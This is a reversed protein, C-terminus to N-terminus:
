SGYDGSDFPDVFCGSEVFDGVRGFDAFEGSVLIGLNVPIIPIVMVILNQLYVRNM